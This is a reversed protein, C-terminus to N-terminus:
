AWYMAGPKAIICAEKLAAVAKALGEDNSMLGDEHEISIVYDYGVLRLASVIDKWVKVDHGYGITRFTWSRQLIGSYPKNDMCGNVSTNIPDVYVDKGHMHFIADDLKRIAAVPDVGNWFLHSPDFNAGIMPGCAERLRLLTYVNYVLMGPHMELAVKIGHQEAVKNAERWYPIAVDEWQYRLMDSFETPWPCTIWNIGKDEPTGGPCGSFTNVVPVELLQALRLARRYEEDSRRAQAKDPAIPNNHTSLASLVLGRSTIAQMYAKRKEASALLDDVPCHAPSGYGGVGIEVASVGAAVARDLAEEFPYQQYLATFVGIRM